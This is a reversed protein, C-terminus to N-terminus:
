FKPNKWFLIQINMYKYYSIKLKAAIEVNHTDFPKNPNKKHLRVGLRDVPYWRGSADVKCWAGDSPRKKFTSMDTPHPPQPPDDGTYPKTRDIDEIDLRHEPPKYDQTLPPEESGGPEPADIDYFTTM